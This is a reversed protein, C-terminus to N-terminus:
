APGGAAGRRERAASGTATLRAAKDVQPPKGFAARYVRSFHAASTFGCALAVEVVPM